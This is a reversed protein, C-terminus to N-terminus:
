IRIHINDETISTQYNWVRFYDILEKQFHLTAETQKIAFKVKGAQVNELIANQIDNLCLDLAYRRMSVADKNPLTINPFKNDLARDAM